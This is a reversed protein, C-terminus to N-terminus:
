GFSETLLSMFFLALMHQGSIRPTANAIVVNMWFCRNRGNGFNSDSKRNSNVGGWIRGAPDPQFLDRHSRKPRLFFDHPSTSRWIGWM